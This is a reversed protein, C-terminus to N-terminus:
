RQLIYTYTPMLRPPMVAAEVQTTFKCVKRNYCILAMNRWQYANFM